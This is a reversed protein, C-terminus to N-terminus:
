AQSINEHGSRPKSVWLLRRRQRGQSYM